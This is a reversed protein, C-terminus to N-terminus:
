SALRRSRIYWNHCERHSSGRHGPLVILNEPDDYQHCICCKRWSPHGCELLAKKRTHLLTHYVQDECVVLNSPCNDSKVENTHHVIASLPLYKGIVREAVLIHEPVYGRSDAKPHNPTKVMVYGSGAVYTGNM